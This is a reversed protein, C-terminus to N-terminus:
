PELVATKQSFGGVVRLHVITRAPICVPQRAAIRAFRTSDSTTAVNLGAAFRPILALVNMGLLGPVHQDADRVVLVARDAIIQGAVVIDTEFCGIYPLVPGDAARIMLWNRASHLERGQPEICARHFSETVFSVQSGSDLLCDVSLGGLVVRAVPKKGALREM